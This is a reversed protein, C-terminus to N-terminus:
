LEHCSDIRFYKGVTSEIERDNLDAEEYIYQSSCAHFTGYQSQCCLMFSLCTEDQIEYLRNEVYAKIVDNVEM